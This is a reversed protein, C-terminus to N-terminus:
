IFRGAEQAKKVLDALLATALRSFRADIFGTAIPMWEHAIGQATVSLTPDDRVSITLTHHQRQDPDLGADFEVKIKRVDIAQRVATIFVNDVADRMVLSYVLDIKESMQKEQKLPCTNLM